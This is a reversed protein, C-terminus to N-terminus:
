GLRPRRHRFGAVAIIALGTALLAMTAPEPTPTMRSYVDITWSPNDLLARADGRVGNGNLQLQLYSRARVRGAFM